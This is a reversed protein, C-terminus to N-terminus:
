VCDSVFGAPSNLHWGSASTEAVAGFTITTLRQSSPAGSIPSSYDDDEPDDPKRNLVRYAYTVVVLLNCVILSSSAELNVAITEVETVLLFHAIAHFLCFLSMIISSSFTALIMRRQRIPLNVNWLLRLSFTVMITDAICGTAVEYAAMLRDIRCSPCTMHYWRRNSRFNWAKQVIFGGWMLFFLIAFGLSLHFLRQTPRAVRTIAFLISMRASWNICTFTFSTVWFTVTCTTGQLSLLHVWSNILHVAGCLGAFAAWADEWWFRKTHLRFCVRFVTLGLAIGQVVSTVAKMQVISPSLKM